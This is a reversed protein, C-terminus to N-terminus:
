MRFLMSGGLGGGFTRREAHWENCARVCKERNFASIDNTLMTIQSCTLMLRLILSKKPLQNILLRYSGRSEMLNVLM